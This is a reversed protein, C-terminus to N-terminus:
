EPETSSWGRCEHYDGEMDLQQQTTYSDSFFPDSGCRVNNDGEIKKIVGIVHKETLDLLLYVSEGIDIDSRDSISVNNGHPLKITMMGNKKHWVIGKHKDQPQYISVM